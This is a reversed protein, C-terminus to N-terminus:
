LKRRIAAVAAMAQEGIETIRSHALAFKGAQKVGSNRSETSSPLRCQAQKQVKIWPIKLAGETTTWWLL